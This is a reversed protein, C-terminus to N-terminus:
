SKTRQDNVRIIQDIKGADLRHQASAGDLSKVILQHPCDREAGIKEHDMGPRPAFSFDFRGDGGDYIADFFCDAAHLEALQADQDFISSSHARRDTRAQFFYRSDRATKGRETHSDTEVGRM